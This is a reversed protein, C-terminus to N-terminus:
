FPHQIGFWFQLPYSGNVTKAIDFRLTTREILGLWTVDIRMGAGVAHAISGLPHGNVYANGVDYFPALYINRVGAVHDICDWPLNTAVPVRWEVSGVWLMSGQREYLDFGRFNDGGGLAFFQGDNPLAAAGGIRFAWRTDALWDRVPGHGFWDNLKTMGKVFAFQGYAQQFDRGTGFIPLGYQYTMDLSYGGEADWYPTMLNKHYHLGLATRDRFLDAGPTAVRPDPLCRNQMLGFTEVYEFPPLYLASGYMLIYRAFIVGRNCPIDSNNLTGVSKEVSM